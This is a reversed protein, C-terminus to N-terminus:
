GWYSDGDTNWNGDLGDTGEDNNDVSVYFGRHPIVDTDGALFVYRLPNTTYLSIIYNRLKEQTDAGQNETTIESISKILVTKGRTEQFTKLPTWQTIKEADVVILYEIGTERSSTITITEPNDVIKQLRSATFSDQKLFHMAEIARASNSYSIEVSLERYFVLENTLPYYAFPSIASFAIPQGSLFSTILGNDTIQPYPLPSEYIEPNPKEPTERKTHSFPYARPIPIIPKDLTYTVPNYRNVVIKEAAFGAPLLLKIGFWPLDPNGPQGWSQAKELSVKTYQEKAEIRPTELSYNMTVGAVLVTTSFLLIALLAINKM